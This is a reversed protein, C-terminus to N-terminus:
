KLLGSPFFFSEIGIYGKSNNQSVNQKSGRFHESFNFVPFSQNMWVLRAGNVHFKIFNVEDRTKDKESSMIISRKM